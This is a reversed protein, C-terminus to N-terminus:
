QPKFERAITELKESYSVPFSAPIKDFTRFERPLTDRQAVHFDRIKDLSPLKRSIKGRSM